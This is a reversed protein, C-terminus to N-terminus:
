LSPVDQYKSIKRARLKELETAPYQKDWAEMLRREQKSLPINYKQSMYLYVRAVFGRKSPAISARRNKFDVSFNCAGYMQSQPENADYRYNSRDGNVEGIAPVLNYLDGEMENFVPDNKCNKRGGEQWCKLHQGFNHAPMIHEWEVRLTRENIDGKKTYPKRPTYHKEIDKQVLMAKEKGKYVVIEYPADCYFTTKPLDNTYIQKLLIKKAQSFDSAELFACLLLAGLLIKKM